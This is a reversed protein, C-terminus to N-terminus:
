PRRLIIKRITVAHDAVIRILYIGSPLMSIDIATPLLDFAELTRGALDTLFVTGDTAPRGRGNKIWILGETPNPYVSLSGDDPNTAYTSSLVLVLQDSQLFCGNDDEITVVYTGSGLGQFVVSDGSHQVEQCTSLGATDYLCATYPAVGGAAGVSITGNDSSVTLNLGLAPPSTLEVPPSVLTCGNGDMVTVTYLGAALQDIGATGAGNSWLYSLPKTGGAYQPSISGTATGFCDPHVVQIGDMEIAPSLQLTVSASDICEAESTVVVTYTATEVPTISIIDTMAGTNWLYLAGGSATLTTSSGMCVLTAGSITPVPLPHVTITQTATATCGNANTATVTYTTTESPAPSIQALTADTSWLYSVGGDALLTTSEGACIVSTGSISAVPLSNVAVTQSATTTCGNADTITVTYTTTESPSPSIQALTADTSWLYSVGGGGLLTTSEGACIATTGSISAVPLANVTVTRSATATCGNADTATVTYTTTGAPAPSIQAFTADTSWLYSLGGGALLTTSEGACIATTGSISAVPLANVAVTQSATATCGNADTATATYITSMTPMVPIQAQTAGTSWLYSVGGGALLTTSEGACIATTGSISAVPLSNVAVTQSATATCGNADTTTVTYTTTGTPALSIQALTADTSWLYSLGGGALLTTSEGACIATTGSISPTPLPNVMVTQAATATCGNAGTARVTYTTTTVLTVPIQSQTAGTSWLYSVGGDAALTASQEICISTPGSITLPPVPNVTVTQTATATCGNVATATVTYTTTAPPMVPLQALTTGTSWLYSSGGIVSITTNAGACIVATGVISPTPLANIAVMHTTSATCGGANTATVTYTAPGPPTVSIQSQTENTSWLYSLGGDASLTANSGACVATAGSISPTPLPNVTVTQSTTATCGNAGTARVTYTTTTVPTPQIQSQTAGTSWLYSVGGTASLTASGGTCVAATGSLSLPPAPNVAVSKTATATCGNAATATVTYINGPLPVVTTQAQTAGNSWLYSVGGNASLTASSGACVSTAGSISALPPAGNSTVTASVASTCGLADAVTVNYVGPLLNTRNQPNGAGPLDSWDFTYPLVGGSPTIDVRGNAADCISATASAAVNLNTNVTVTFACTATTGSANTAKFVMSTAGSPFLSGSPLGSTQAIQIPLSKFANVKCYFHDDDLYNPGSLNANEILNSGPAKAYYSVGSAHDTYGARVDLSNPCRLEVILNKNPPLHVTSDLTVCYVGNNMDPPTFMKSTLLHGSFISYITLEVGPDIWYLRLEAPATGTADYIGVKVDTISLTNPDNVPLVRLHGRAAGNKDWLGKIIRADTNQVLVVPANCGDNVQPANFSVVRSCNAADAIQVINGPCSSFVPAGSGPAPPVVVTEFACSNNNSVTVLYNGGALCKATAQRQGEGGWQYNTAPAIINASGNLPAACTPPVSEYSLSMNSNCVVGTKTQASSFWDQPDPNNEDPSNQGNGISAYAYLKITENLSVNDARWDIEWRATDGNQPFGIYSSNHAFDFTGVGDIPVQEDIRWNTEGTGCGQKCPFTGASKTTDSESIVVFEFGPRRFNPGGRTISVVIRYTEGPIIKQPFGSISFINGTGSAMNSHCKSCPSPKGRRVRDGPGPSNNSQLLALLIGAAFLLYLLHIKRKM